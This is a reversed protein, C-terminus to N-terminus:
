FHKSGDRDEDVEPRIQLLQRIEVFDLDLFLCEVIGLSRRVEEQSQAKEHSPRSEVSRCGEHKFAGSFKISIVVLNQRGCGLREGALVGERRRQQQPRHDVKGQVVAPRTSVLVGRPM